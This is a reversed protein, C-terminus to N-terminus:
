TRSLRSARVGGIPQKAQPPRSDPAPARLRAKIATSLCVTLAFHIWYNPMFFATLFVSGVILGVGAANMGVAFCHLFEFGKEKCIAASKFNIYFSVLVMSCFIGLGLYGLEAGMQLYTNHAEEVRWYLTPDFYHDTFYPGWNYYGVGFWPNESLMIRAKEWYAIRSLSTADTGANQFRELFEPPMMFYGLLLVLCTVLWARVKRRSFFSLYFLVAVIGVMAGRSSSAIVCSLATLPLFYMLWKKWGVWYQKLFFIFCVTYAFFMSMQLGLEGSNRFWGAGTVGWSAFGFGRNVWSFFGFQSMKFNAMFYVLLFLFLRRETNVISTILFYVVVWTAVIDFKAFSRASNYALVSSVICEALFLLLLWNLPSSVLKSQKDVFLGVIAAMLSLRLFPLIGFIPYNQEPKIYEFVLYVSIAIFVFHQSWFAAWLAKPSLSLMAESVLSNLSDM